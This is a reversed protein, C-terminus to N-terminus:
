RSKSYSIINKVGPWDLFQRDMTTFGMNNKLTEIHKSYYGTKYIGEKKDIICLCYRRIEEILEESTISSAYKKKIYMLLTLAVYVTFLHAKIHEPKYVFIPRADMGTKMQRFCDEIDNRKGAIEVIELDDKFVVRYGEKALKDFSRDENDQVRPIDTVYLLYGAFKRDKEIAEQNLELISKAQIVEGTTKDVVLKKIYQKGDKCNALTLKNPNDFFKKLRKLRNDITRNVFAKAKEDFRAVVREERKNTRIIWWSKVRKKGNQYTLWGNSEFLPKLNEESLQKPSQCFIYNRGSNHIAKKNDETNLGNDAVIIRTKSAEEGADDLLPILSGKESENGRFTASGIPFGDGDLLLGYEVIPDPRHNKEVGYARLGDEKDEEQIEFYFNTCDYYIAESNSGLLERCRGSLKRTLQGSFENIRDLADYLDDVTLDFDELYDNNKKSTALKSGPDEVRSYVMLRFADNLSYKIKLKNDFKWKNLFPEIRLDYYAKQLFLYGANKAFRLDTNNMDIRQNLDIKISFEDRKKNEEGNSLIDIREKLFAEAGQEGGHELCLTRYSPFSELTKRVKTGPVAMCIYIKKDGNKQPFRKIYM